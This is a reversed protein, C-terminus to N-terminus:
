AQKGPSVRSNQMSAQAHQMEMAGNPANSVKIISELSLLFLNSIFTYCKCNELSKPIAAIVLSGANTSDELESMIDQEEM